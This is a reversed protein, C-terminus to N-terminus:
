YPTEAFHKRAASTVRNVRGSSRSYGCIVRSCVQVQFPLLDGERHGGCIEKTCHPLDLTHPRVDSWDCVTGTEGVVNM